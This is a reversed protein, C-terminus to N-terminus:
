LSMNKATFTSRIRVYVHVSRSRDTPAPLGVVLNCIYLNRIGLFPEIIGRFPNQLIGFIDIFAFVSGVYILKLLFVMLQGFIIDIAM